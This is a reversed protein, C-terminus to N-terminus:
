PFGPVKHQFGEESLVTTTEVLSIDPAISLRGYPSLFPIISTYLIHITHFINANKTYIYISEKKNRFIKTMSM